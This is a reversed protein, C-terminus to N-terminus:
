RQRLMLHSPQPPAPFDFEYGAGYVEEGTGDEFVVNYFTGGVDLNDIRTANGDEVIVTAAQAASTGLLLGLAIVGTAFFVILKFKM